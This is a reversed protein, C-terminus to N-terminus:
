SHTAIIKLMRDAYAEWSVLRMVEQRARQTIRGAERPNSIIEAIADALRSPNRPPVVWGQRRAKIIDAAGINDTIVVPLGAAVAEFVSIGWTFGDNVFTFIDAEGYLARMEKDSVYEKFTVRSQLRQTRVLEELSGAYEPSLSHLGIITVHVNKRRQKLLAVAAIVDEYRRHPFLVGVSLLQFREKSEYSRNEGIPAFSELDAGAYVVVAERGLQEKVLRQNFSDYTAFASIRRLGRRLARQDRIATGLASLRRLFPQESTARRWQSLCHTWSALRDPLQNNLMWVTTPRASMAGLARISYDDHIILADLSELDIKESLAAHEQVADSVDRGQENLAWVDLTDILDPYCAERNIRSTYIKVEHGKRLLAESLRLVLKQYGGSVELNNVLM